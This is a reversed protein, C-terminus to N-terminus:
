ALAENWLGPDTYQVFKALKGERVTWSHVFPANLKRGSGRSVGSYSGFVAVRDGQGLFEAPVAAFDDFDRGLREFVQAVVEPVGRYAGAYPGRDAETWEIQPDLMSFATPVDGAAFLGYFKRVTEVSM